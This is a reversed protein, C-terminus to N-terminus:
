FLAFTVGKTGSLNTNRVLHYEVTQHSSQLDQMKAHAHGKIPSVLYCHILVVVFFLERTGRPM